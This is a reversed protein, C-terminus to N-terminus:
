HNGPIPVQDGLKAKLTTIQDLIGPELTEYLPELLVPSKMRLIKRLM